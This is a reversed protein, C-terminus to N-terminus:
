TYFTSSNAPPCFPPAPESMFHCIVAGRATQRCAAYVTHGYVAFNCSLSNAYDRSHSTHVAEVNGDATM